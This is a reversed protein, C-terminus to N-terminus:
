EALVQAGPLHLGARVTVLPLRDRAIVDGLRREHVEEVPGVVQRRGDHERGTAYTREPDHTRYLRDHDAGAVEVPPPPSNVLDLQVFTGSRAADPGSANAGALHRGDGVAREASPAHM